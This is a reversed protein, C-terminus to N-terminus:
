EDKALKQTQRELIEKMVLTVLALLGLV